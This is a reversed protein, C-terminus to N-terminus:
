SLSSLLWFLATRSCRFFSSNCFSLVPVSAVGGASFVLVVPGLKGDGVAESDGASDDFFSPFFFRFFSCSPVLSVFWVSEGDGEGVGCHIPLQGRTAVLM